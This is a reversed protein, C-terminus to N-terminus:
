DDWLKYQEEISAFKDMHKNVTKNLSKLTEEDRQQKRLLQYDMDALQAEMAIYIEDKEFKTKQAREADKQGLAYQFRIDRQNFDMTGEIFDGLDHSATIVIFEADPFKTQDLHSKTDCEIVIFRRIGSDYLPKVPINDKVGGDIYWSDGMQVPEFIFPLCTSARLIDCIETKSKNNLSLYEATFDSFENMSFSGLFRFLRAENILDEGTIGAPGRSVGCFCLPKDKKFLEEDVFQDLLKDIEDRKLLHDSQSLANVDVKLIKSNKMEKWIEPLKEPGQMYIAANVAGISDGSIGVLDDLLGLEHLKVMAGAQYGGKAGGGSLVLGTGKMIDEM